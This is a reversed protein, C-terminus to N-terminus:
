DSIIRDFILSHRKYVFYLKFVNRTGFLPFKESTFEICRDRLSREEFEMRM